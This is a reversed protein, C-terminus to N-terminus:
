AQRPDQGELGHPSSRIYRIQAVRRSHLHIRDVRIPAGVADPLMFIPVKAMRLKLFNAVYCRRAPTAAFAALASWLLEDLDRLRLTASM